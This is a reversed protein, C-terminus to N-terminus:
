IITQENGILTMIIIIVMWCIGQLRRRDFGWRRARSICRLRTQIPVFIPLYFTQCKIGIAGGTTKYWVM